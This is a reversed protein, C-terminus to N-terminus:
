SDTNQLALIAAGEYVMGTENDTLQVHSEDELAGTALEKAEELNDIQVGMSMGESEDGVRLYYRPAGNTQGEILAHLEDPSISGSIGLREAGKGLVEMKGFYDPSQKPPEDKKKLWRAFPTTDMAPPVYWTRQESDWSAGLSRVEDKEAFPVYLRIGRHQPSGPIWPAFKDLDFKSNIFWVRQQPDWRAGLRKVQEKQAFPVELNIRQAPEFARKLGGAIKSLVSVLRHSRGGM